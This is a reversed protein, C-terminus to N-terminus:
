RISYNDLLHTRIRDIEDINSVYYRPYYVWYEDPRGSDRGLRVVLRGRNSRIDILIRGEPHTHHAWYGCMSRLMDLAGEPDTAREGNISVQATELGDLYSFAEHRAEAKVIGDIALISLLSVAVVIFLLRNYTGGELPDRASIVLLLFSLVFLGGVYLYAADL